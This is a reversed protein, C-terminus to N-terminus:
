YLVSTMPQLIGKRLRCLPFGMEVQACCLAGILHKPSMILIVYAAVLVERADEGADRCRSCVGFHGTCNNLQKEQPELRPYLDEVEM